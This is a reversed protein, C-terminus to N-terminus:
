RRKPGQLAELVTVGRTRHRAVHLVLALMLKGIDGCAGLLKDLGDPDAFVSRPLLGEEQRRGKVAEVCDEPLVVRVPAGQGPLSVRLERGEGCIYVVALFRGVDAEESELVEYYGDPYVGVVVCDGSV